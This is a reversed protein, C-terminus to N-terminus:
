IFGWLLIQVAMHLFYDPLLLPLIALLLLGGAAVRGNM